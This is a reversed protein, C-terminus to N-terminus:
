KKDELMVKRSHSKLSLFNPSIECASKLKNKGRLLGLFFLENGHGLNSGLMGPHGSRYIRDDQAILSAVESISFM